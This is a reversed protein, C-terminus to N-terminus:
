SDPLPVCVLVTIGSVNVFVFACFITLSCIWLVIVSLLFVECRTLSYTILSLSTLTLHYVEGSFAM